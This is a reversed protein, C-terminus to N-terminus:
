SYLALSVVHRTGMNAQTWNTLAGVQVPSSRDTTNGQGLDGQGNLASWTWLTSDTKIAACGYSGASANSWTTLAGVQKPSSYHSGNGLGLRGYNFGWTWMTGDTKIAANHYTGASLKLWNTLTGVQVPSSINTLNNLGLQGRNNNGWAWLTGDTKIAHMHGFGGCVATSWTTGAGVQVPSSTSTTNGQGLSGYGNPGWAWLTGDTKIAVTSSGIDVSAWTTLAGVQV